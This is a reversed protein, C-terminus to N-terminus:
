EACGAVAEDAEAEELHSCACAGAEGEPFPYQPEAVVTNPKIDLGEVWDIFREKYPANKNVQHGQGQRVVPWLDEPLDVPQSGFYFFHDSLLANIGGLDRARNRKDHVSARVTPPDTRFDYIADGVRRRGDRHRWDPVKNPLEKRVFVEYDRMSLVRSVRMAYVVKRAFDQGRVNKSGTGVVWDGEHATRRIVPKCIVLSCVGWFPNPAAGDDIRLCYTFLRAM